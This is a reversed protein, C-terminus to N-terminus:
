THSSLVAMLIVLISAITLGIALPVLPNLFDTKALYIHKGLIIGYSSKSIPVANDAEATLVLRIKCFVRRLNKITINKSNDPNLANITGNEQHMHWLPSGLLPCRDIELSWTVNEAAYEGQNSVKLNILERSGAKIEEIKLISVPIIEEIKNTNGKDDEISLVVKYIGQEDWNYEITKDSGIKTANNPNDIYFSWNYSVIEGDPDRSKSADLTINEGPAPNKPTYSIEPFPDAGVGVYHACYDWDWGYSPYIGYANVSLTVQYRGKEEFTHTVTNGHKTHGDKFDWSEGSIYGYYACSTSYFTIKEGPDPYRPSWHFSAAAIVQEDYYDTKKIDPNEKHDDTSTKKNDKILFGSITPFM